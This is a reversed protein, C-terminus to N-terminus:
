RLECLVNVVDDISEAGTAVIKAAEDIVSNYGCWYKVTSSGYHNTNRIRLGQLHSTIAKIAGICEGAMAAEQLSTTWNAAPSKSQEILEACKDAYSNSSAYCPLALVFILSIIWKNM